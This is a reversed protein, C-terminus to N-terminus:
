SHRHGKLKPSPQADATAQVIRHFWEEDDMDDFSVIIYQKSGPYAEGTPLHNLRNDDLGLPKLLFTDDCIFAVTKDDCYLCQEGFMPRTRVNLPMLRDLIDEITRKDNSM